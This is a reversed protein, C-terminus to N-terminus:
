IWIYIFKIDDLPQSVVRTQTNKIELDGDARLGYAWVGGLSIVM